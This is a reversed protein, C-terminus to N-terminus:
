ALKIVNFIIFSMIIYHEENEQEQKETLDM